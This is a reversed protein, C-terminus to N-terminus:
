EVAPPPTDETRDQEGSPPEISYEAAARGVSSYGVPARGVSSPLASRGISSHSAAASASAPPEAAFAHRFQDHLSPADDDVNAVVVRPRDPEDTADNWAEDFRVITEAAAKFIASLLAREDPSLDVDLAQIKQALSEIDSPSIPVIAM